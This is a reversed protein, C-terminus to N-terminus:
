LGCMWTPSDDSWATKCYCPQPAGRYYPNEVPLYVTGQASVPGRTEVAAPRPLPPAHHRRSAGPPAAGCFQQDRLHPRPRRPARRPPTLQWTVQPLSTPSIAPHRYGRCQLEGRRPRANGCPLSRRGPPCFLLRLRLPASVMGPHSTVARRAAHLAAYRRAV